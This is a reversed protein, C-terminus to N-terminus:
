SARSGAEWMPETEPRRVYGLHDLAAEGRGGGEPAVGIGTRTSDGYSTLPPRGGCWSCGAAGGGM